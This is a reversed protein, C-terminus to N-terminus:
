PDWRMQTRLEDGGAPQFGLREYLARARPNVDLVRLTVPRSSARAEELLAGLLASGLGRGQLEPLVQISPVDIREASRDVVLLGAPRGGVEVVQWTGPEFHADFYARQEGDDWGWVADVYPGMTVRHLAFLFATDDAAAPRLTWDPTTM